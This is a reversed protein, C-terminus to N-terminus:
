WHENSIQMATEVFMIFNIIHSMAGEEISRMMYDALVFCMNFLNLNYSYDLIIFGAFMKESARYFNPKSLDYLRIQVM